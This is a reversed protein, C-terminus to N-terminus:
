QCGVTLGERASRSILIGDTHPANDELGFSAYHARHYDSADVTDVGIFDSPTVENGEQNSSMQVSGLTTGGISFVFVGENALFVGGTGTVGDGEPGSYEVGQVASDSLYAPFEQPPSTAPSGGGGCAVLFGAGLATFFGLLSNKATRLTNETKM